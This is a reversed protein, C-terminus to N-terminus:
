LKTVIPTALFLRHVPSTKKAMNVSNEPLLTFTSMHSGFIFDDSPLSQFPTNRKTLPMRRPHKALEGEGLWERKGKKRGVEGGGVVYRWFVVGRGKSL